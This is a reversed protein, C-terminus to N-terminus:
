IFVVMITLGGRIGYGTRIPPLHFMRISASLLVVIRAPRLGFVRLYGIAAMGGIFTLKPMSIQFPQMAYQRLLHTLIILVAGALEPLIVVCVSGYCPTCM